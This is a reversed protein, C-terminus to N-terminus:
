APAKGAVNWLWAHLKHVGAPQAFMLICEGAVAEIGNEACFAIAAESESGQQMWVRRIGAAGADRLVAETEPPPVVLLLGGVDKPLDAIRRYCRMDGIRDASPHVPFVEYGKKRLAQCAAFGFGRRSRSVGAVALKRQRLFDDVAKRTTM